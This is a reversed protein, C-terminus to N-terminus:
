KDQKVTKGSFYYLRVLYAFFIILFLALQLHEALRIKWLIIGAAIFLLQLTIAILLTANVSFGRDLLQHHYHVRDASFPSRGRLPRVILVAVADILPLALFWLATVPWIGKEIQSYQILLFAVILGLMTSGADGMFASARSRGLRINWFLFGAIVSLCVVIFGSAPHGILLLSLLVIFVLTGALGDLGDSMNIANIVGICAFITMSVSWFRGMLIRDTGSFLFGLDVLVVSTFLIMLYVAAGQAVFRVWSPLKYRDDLAGVACMLFLSPLLPAFSTDILLLGCILGIYMALGGVMPTSEQHLRHEGPEALLGLKPALRSLLYVAGLTLVFILGLLGYQVTLNINTIM